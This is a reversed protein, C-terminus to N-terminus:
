ERLSQDYAYIAPPRGPFWFSQAQYTLRVVQNFEPRLAARNHATRGAAGYGIVNFVLAAVFIGLVLYVLTGGIRDVFGLFPLHTDPLSARFLLELVLWLVVAAVAFSLALASTDVSGVPRGGVGARTLINLFSRSYPTLVPYFTAAIATGLYMAIATLLGRIINQMTGYAAFGAIVFLMAMDMGGLERPGYFYYAVIGMTGLTVVILAVIGKSRTPKKEARELLTM